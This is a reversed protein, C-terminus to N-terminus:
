EANFVPMRGKVSCVEVMAEADWIRGGRMILKLELTKDSVNGELLDVGPPYVIFDALKGRAL